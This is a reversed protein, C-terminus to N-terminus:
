GNRSAAPGLLYSHALIAPRTLVAQWRRGSDPSHSSCRPFLNEACVSAISMRRLEGRGEERNSGLSSRGHARWPRSHAELRGDMRCQLRYAATNDYIATRDRATPISPVLSSGKPMELRCAPNENRFRGM